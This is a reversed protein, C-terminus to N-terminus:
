LFVDVHGRNQYILHRAFAFCIGRWCIHALDPQLKEFELYSERLFVKHIINESFEKLMDGKIKREAKGDTTRLPSVKFKEAFSSLGKIPNGEKAFWEAELNVIIFPAACSDTVTLNQMEKVEVAKGVDPLKDWFTAEGGAFPARGLVGGAPSM